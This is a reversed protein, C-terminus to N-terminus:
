AAEQKKAKVKQFQQWARYVHACLHPTKPRDPDNPVFDANAECVEGPTSYKMCQATKSKSDFVVVRRDKMPHKFQKGHPTIRFVVVDRFQRIKVCWMLAARSRILPSPEKAEIEAFYM